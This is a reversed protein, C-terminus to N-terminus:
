GTTLAGNRIDELSPESMGVHWTPDTLEVRNGSPDLLYLERGPFTGKKRYVLPPNALPINEEQTAFVAREWIDPAVTFAYHVGAAEIGPDLTEGTEWLIFNADGVRFCTARGNGLRGRCELGLFDRYFEESKELDTVPMSWHTLGTAGLM